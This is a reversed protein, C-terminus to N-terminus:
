DFWAFVRDISTRVTHSHTFEHQKRYTRSYILNAWQYERKTQRLEIAWVGRHIAHRNSLVSCQTEWTWVFWCACKPDMLFCSRARGHLRCHKNVHSPSRTKRRLRSISMSNEREDPALRPPPREIRHLHEKSESAGPASANFKM